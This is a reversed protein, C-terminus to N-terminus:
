EATWARIKSCNRMINLEHINDECANHNMLTELLENVYIMFLIPGFVSGQQVGTKVPRMPSKKGAITVCQSRFMLYSGFCEIVEKGFNYLRLKELLVHKMYDFTCSEDLTMVTAIMNRDTAILIADVIDNNQSKELVYQESSEITIYEGHIAYSIIVRSTM